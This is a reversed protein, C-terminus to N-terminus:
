FPESNVEAFVTKDISHSVFLRRSIGNEDEGTLVYEKSILTKPLRREFETKEFFLNLQHRENRPITAINNELMLSITGISVPFKYILSELIGIQFAANEICELPKNCLYIFDQNSLKDDKEISRGFSAFSRRCEELSDKPHSINELARNSIKYFAIDFLVPIISKIIEIPDLVNLSEMAFEMESIPDFIKEQDRARIPEANEWLSIFTHGVNTEGNEQNYCSPFYWRVFDAMVASPNAHKFASMDSIMHENLLKTYHQKDVKIKNLIENRALEQDLTRIPPLQLEPIIMEQGNLLLNVSNNTNKPTIYQDTHTICYNIMQLKQYILCYKTCIGNTEIGPIPTQRDMCERVKTLFAEWLIIMSEPTCKKVMKECLIAFSSNPTCGKLGTNYNKTELKQKQFISDMIKKLDPLKYETKGSSDQPIVSLLSVFQRLKSNRKPKGRPSPCVAIHDPNMIDMKMSNMPTKDFYLYINIWEIPDTNLTLYFFDKKYKLGNLYDCEDLLAVVRSSIYMEKTKGSFQSSFDQCIAQIKLNELFIFDMRSSYHIKHSDIFQIGHFTLGNLQSKIQLFIPISIGSQEGATALISFMKQELSSKDVTATSQLYVLIFDSSLGFLHRVSQIQSTEYDVTDSLQAAADYDSLIYLFQFKEKEKILIERSKQHNNPPQKWSRFIQEINTVCEEAPTLSSFDSWLGEIPVHELMFYFLLTIQFSKFSKWIVKEIKTLRLFFYFSNSYM